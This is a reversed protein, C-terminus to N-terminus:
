IDIKLGYSIKKNRYTTKSKYCVYYASCFIIKYYTGTDVFVQCFYKLVIHTNEREYANFHNQLVIWILFKTKFRFVFNLNLM